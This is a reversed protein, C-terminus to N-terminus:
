SHTPSPSKVWAMPKEDDMRRVLGAKELALLARLVRAVHQQNSEAGPQRGIRSALVTTTYGAHTECWRNVASLVAAQFDDM